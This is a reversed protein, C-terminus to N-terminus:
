RPSNPVETRRRVDAHVRSILNEIEAAHARLSLQLERSSISEARDVAAKAVDAFPRGFNEYQGMDSQVVKAFEFMASRIGRCVVKLREELVSVPAKQQASQDFAALANRVDTVLAEFKVDVYEFLKAMDKDEM